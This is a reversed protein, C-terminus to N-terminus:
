HKYEGGDTLWSWVVVGWVLVALIAMPLKWKAKVPVFNDRNYPIGQFESEKEELFQKVNNIYAFYEKDFLSTKIEWLIKKECDKIWRNQGKSYCIIANRSIKKGMINLKLIIKLRRIEGVDDCTDVFYKKFIMALQVGTVRIVRIRTIKSFFADQVLDIVNKKIGGEAQSYIWDYQDTHDSEVTNNNGQENIEDAKINQSFTSMGCKECFRANESVQTGCNRCFM